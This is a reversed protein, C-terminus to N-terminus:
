SRAIQANRQISMTRGLIQQGLDLRTKLSFVNEKRQYTISSYLIIKIVELVNMEHKLGWPWNGVHGFWVLTKERFSSPLRPVFISLSWKVVSINRM